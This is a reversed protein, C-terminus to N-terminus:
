RAIPRAVARTIPATPRIARRPRVGQDALTTIREGDADMGLDVVETRFAGLAGSVDDRAFGLALTGIASDDNWELQAIADVAAPLSSHGRSKTGDNWTGHHIGMVHAGTQHRLENLNGSLIGMDEPGNENGGALARNITDVIILRVGNRKALAIIDHLDGEDATSRLLDIPQAIVHFDVCRGYRKVLAAVRKGIGREGEAILYLM